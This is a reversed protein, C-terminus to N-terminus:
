EQSAFLFGLQFISFFFINSRLFKPWLSKVGATAKADTQLASFPFDDSQADSSYPKLEICTDYVHLKNVNNVWINQSTSVGTRRKQKRETETQRVVTPHSMRRAVAVLAAVNRKCMWGSGRIQLASDDGCKTGSVVLGGSQQGIKDLIFTNHFCGMCKQETLYQCEDLSFSYQETFSM